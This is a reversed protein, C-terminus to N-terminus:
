RQDGTPPRQCIGSIIVFTVVKVEDDRSSAVMSSRGVVSREDYPVGEGGDFWAARLSNTLIVTGEIM